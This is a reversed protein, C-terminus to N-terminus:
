YMKNTVKVPSKVVSLQHPLLNLEIITHKGRFWPLTPQVPSEAGAPFV